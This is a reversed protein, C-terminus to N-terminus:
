AWGKYLVSCLILVWYFYSWTNFSEQLLVKFCLTRWPPIVQGGRKPNWLYLGILFSSPLLSPLCIKVVVFAGIGERMLTRM